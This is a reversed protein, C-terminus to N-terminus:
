TQPASPHGFAAATGEALLFLRLESISAAPDEVCEVGATKLAPITLTELATSAVGANSWIQLLQCQGDAEAVVQGLLEAPITREFGLAARVSKARANLELESIVPRTELADISCGDKDDGVSVFAESGAGFFWDEIKLRRPVVDTAGYPGQAVGMARVTNTVTDIGVGAFYADATREDNWLFFSRWSDRGEWAAHASLGDPWHQGLGLIRYFVRYYDWDVGPLSYNSIVNVASPGTPRTIPVQQGLQSNTATSHDPIV